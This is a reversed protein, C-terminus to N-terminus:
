PLPFPNEKGNYRCDEPATFTFLDATIDGKVITFEWGGSLVAAKCNDGEAIDATVTYTGPIVPDAENGDRYYKLTVAGAGSIGPKM